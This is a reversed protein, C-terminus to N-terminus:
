NGDGKIPEEFLDLSDLIPFESKSVQKSPTHTNDTKTKKKAM